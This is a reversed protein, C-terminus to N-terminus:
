RELKADVQWTLETRLGDDEFQLSIRADSIGAFIGFPTKGEYPPMKPRWVTGFRAHELLGSNRVVGGPPMAPRFGLARQNREAAQEATVSQALMWPYVLGMAQFAVAREARMASAFDAPLSSALAAPHFALSAGGLGAPATGRVRLPPGFPHNSIILFKGDVRLSFDISALGFPRLSLLLGRDGEQRNLEVEIDRSRGSASRATASNLLRTARVPDTLEIAVHTPRTLLNLLVPVFVLMGQREGEGGAFLTALEGTGLRIIPDGDEVAVHLSPGLLDYFEPSVGVYSEFFTAQSRAFERWAADPLVLDLQAVPARDFLPIQTTAGATSAPLLSRLQNYASSEILPLIFTTLKQRGGTPADFRLAIPDFYQRWFRSYNELYAAYAAAEGPTAMTLTAAQASLPKMRALPGFSASTVTGDAALKLDRASDATEAYGLQILSELSPVPGGGLDFQRLLSAAVLREMALRAKTRRLQGIKVEPGVLRRLFPDSFYGYAQTEPGPPLRQLMFRFEDSRGLSGAGKAALLALSRAIEDAHTSLFWLDGEIAWYATGHATRVTQVGKGSTLGALVPQLLKALLGETQVRVIVTVDTGDAFFLDPAFVACEKLLGQKLLADSLARTLGLDAAYRDLLQYNLSDGVFAGLRQVFASDPAFLGTLAAPQAAHFFARDPPVFNALELTPTAQGRLFEAFPHAKVEVGKIESIPIAIGPKTPNNPENLSQMQLTEQIAARGGFLALLSAAGQRGTLGAASPAAPTPTGYLPGSRELWARLLPAEVAQALANWELGRLRAWDTLMKREGSTAASWDWTVPMMRGDAADRFVLDFKTRPGPALSAYIKMMQKTPRAASLAAEVNKKSISRGLRHLVATDVPVRATDGDSFLVWHRGDDAAPALELLVPERPQARDSSPFTARPVLALDVISLRYEKVAASEPRSPAAPSVGSQPARPDRPQSGSRDQDIFALFAPDELSTPGRGGNQAAFERLRPSHVDLKWRDSEIRQALRNAATRRGDGRLEAWNLVQLHVQRLPADAAPQELRWSEDAPLELDGALITLGLKPDQYRSTNAVPPAAALPTASVLVALCLRPTFPNM